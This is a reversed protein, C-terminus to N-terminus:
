FSFFDGFEFTAYIKEQLAQIKLKCVEDDLIEVSGGGESITLKRKLTIKNKLYGKLKLASKSKYLYYWSNRYM